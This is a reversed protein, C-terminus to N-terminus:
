SSTPRRTSLPRRKPPRFGFRHSLPLRHPARFAATRKFFQRRSAVALTNASEQHVGELPKRDTTM